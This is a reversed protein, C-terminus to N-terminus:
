PRGQDALQSYQKRIVLCFTSLIGRGSPETVRGSVVTVVLRLM